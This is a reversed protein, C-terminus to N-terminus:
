PQSFYLDKTAIAGKLNSSPLGRLAPDVAVANGRRCPPARGPAQPYGVAEPDAEVIAQLPAVLLVQGGLDAVEDQTAGVAVPGVLQRHHHIVGVLADGVDDAAGVQEVGSRALDQQLARQAQGGRAVQVQGQHQVGVAVLQGLGAGGPRHVRICRQRRQTQAPRQEALVRGHELADGRRGGQQLACQPLELRRRDRRAQVKM